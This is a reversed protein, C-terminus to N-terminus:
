LLKELLNQIDGLLKLSDEFVFELKELYRSIESYEDHSMAYGEIDRKSVEQINNLIEWFKDQEKSIEGCSFKGRLLLLTIVNQLDEKLLEIKTNLREYDTQNLKYSQNQQTNSSFFDNSSKM